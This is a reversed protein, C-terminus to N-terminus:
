EEEERPYTVNKPDDRIYAGLITPMGCYGCIEVTPNVLRVPMSVGMLRQAKGEFVEIFEGFQDIWCRECIAQNWSFKPMKMMGFL